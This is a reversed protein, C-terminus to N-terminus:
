FLRTTLERSLKACDTKSSLKYRLKENDTWVSLKVSATLWSDTEITFSSVVDYKISKIIKRKGSLGKVDVVIFRKNTFIITDRIFEYAVIIFEESDVLYDGFEEMVEDLSMATAKGFLGSLISM